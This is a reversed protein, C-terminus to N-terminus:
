KILTKKEERSMGFPAGFFRFIRGFQQSIIWVMELNGLQGRERFFGMNKKKSDTKIQSSNANLIQGKKLEANKQSIRRRYFILKSNEGSAIVACVIASISSGVM